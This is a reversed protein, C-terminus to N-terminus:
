EARIHQIDLQTQGITGQIGQLLQIIINGQGALPLNPTRSVENMAANVHDVLNNLDPQPGLHVQGLAEAM